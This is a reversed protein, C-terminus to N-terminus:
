LKVRNKEFFRLNGFPLARPQKGCFAFDKHKLLKKAEKQSLFLLPTQPLAEYIAEAIQKLQRCQDVPFSPQSRL